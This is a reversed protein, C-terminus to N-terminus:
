AVRKDDEPRRGIKEKQGGREYEEILEEPTKRRLAMQIEVRSGSGPRSREEEQGKKSLLLLELAEMALKGHASMEQDPESKKLDGLQAAVPENQKVDYLEFVEDETTPLVPVGELQRDVAGRVVIGQDGSRWTYKRDTFDVAAHMVSREFVDADIAVMGNGLQTWKVGNPKNVEGLVTGAAFKERSGRGSPSDKYYDGTPNLCIYVKRGNMETVDKVCIQHYKHASEVKENPIPDAWRTNIMVGVRRSIDEGSSSVSSQAERQQRSITIDIYETVSVKRADAPQADTLWVPKGQGDVSIQAGRRATYSEFGANDRRSQAFQRETQGRSKTVDGSTQEMMEALLLTMVAGPQRTKIKDILASNDATDFLGKGTKKILWPNIRDEADKLREGLSDGSGLAVSRGSPQKGEGKLLLGSAYEVWQSTSMGSSQITVTCFSTHGQNINRNDSLMHAIEFIFEKRRLESIGLVDPSTALKHLNDLAKQDGAILDPIIDRLAKGANHSNDLHSAKWIEALKGRQSSNLDYGAITSQFDLSSKEGIGLNTKVATTDPAYASVKPHKMKDSFFERNAELFANSARPTITDTSLGSTTEEQLPM